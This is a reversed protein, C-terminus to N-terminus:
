ALIAKQVKLESERLTPLPGEPTFTDMEEKSCGNCAKMADRARRLLQRRRKLDPQVESGLGKAEQIKQKVSILAEIILALHTRRLM